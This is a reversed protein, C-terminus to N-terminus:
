NGRPSRAAVGGNLLHHQSRRNTVLRTDSALIEQRFFSESKDRQPDNKILRAINSRGSAMSHASPQQLASRIFRYFLRLVHTGQPYALRM